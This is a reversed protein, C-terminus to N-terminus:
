RSIGFENIDLTFSEGDTVILRHDASLVYKTNEIKAHRPIINIINLADTLSIIRVRTDPKIEYQNNVSNYVVAHGKVTAVCEAAAVVEGIFNRRLDTEFHRRMIVHVKEGPELIM